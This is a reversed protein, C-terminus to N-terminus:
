HHHHSPLEGETSTPDVKNNKRCLRSIKNYLPIILLKFILFVMASIELTLFTFLLTRFMIEPLKAIPSQVNKIYYTTETITITLTISTSDTSTAYGTDTLFMEVPTYTFM